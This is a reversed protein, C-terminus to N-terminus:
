REAEQPMSLLDPETMEIDATSWDMYLKVLQQLGFAKMNDHFLVDKCLNVLDHCDVSSTILSRVNLKLKDLVTENIIGNSDVLDNFLAYKRITTLQKDTIVMRRTGSTNTQIEYM